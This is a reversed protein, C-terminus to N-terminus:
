PEPEGRGGWGRGGERVGRLPCVRHCACACVCLASSSSTLFARPASRQPTSPVAGQLRATGPVTPYHGQVCVCAQDMRVERDESHRSRLGASNREVAM